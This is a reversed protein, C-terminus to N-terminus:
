PVYRAAQAGALRGFVVAASLPAGPLSRRGMVGTSVDGVAYLGPLARGKENLIRAQTDIRLGTTKGRTKSHVIMACYGTKTEVSAGGSGSEPLKKQIASSLEATWKLRQGLASVDSECTMGGRRSQRVALSESAPLVLWYDSGEAREAADFSRATWVTADRTDALVADGLRWGQLARGKEDSLYRGCEEQVPRWAGKLAEWDGVSAAALGTAVVVASASAQRVRGESDRYTIRRVGNKLEGVDTVEHNLRIRVGFADLASWLTRVVEIGVPLGLAPAALEGARLPTLTLDAGLLRLRRVADLAGTVWRHALEANLGVGGAQRVAAYLAEEGEPKAAAALMGYSAWRATGGPVPARELVLVSAKAQRAELAASLGAPGAGVVVVDWREATTASAVASYLAWVAFLLKRM